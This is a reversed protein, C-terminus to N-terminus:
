IKLREQEFTKLESSKTINPKFTSNGCTFTGSPDYVTEDYTICMVKCDYCCKSATENDEFLYFNSFIHKFVKSFKPDFSIAKLANICM